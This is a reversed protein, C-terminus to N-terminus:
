SVQIDTIIIKYYYIIIILNLIDILSTPKWNRIKIYYINQLVWLNRLPKKQM